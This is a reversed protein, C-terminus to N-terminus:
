AGTDGVPFFLAAGHCCLFPKMSRVPLFAPIRDQDAGAHRAPMISFLNMGSALMSEPLLSEM